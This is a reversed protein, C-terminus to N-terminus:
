SFNTFLLQSFEKVQLALQHDNRFYQEAITLSELINSMTCEQRAQAISYRCDPGSELLQGLLIVSYFVIDRNQRRYTAILDTLTSIADMRYLEAKNVHHHQATMVTFFRLAWVIVKEDSFIHKRLSGDFVLTLAKFDGLLRRHQPWKAAIAALTRNMNLQLRMASQEVRTDHDYQWKRQINVLCRLFM